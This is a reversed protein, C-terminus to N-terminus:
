EKTPNHRVLYLLYRMKSRLEPKGPLSSQSQSDGGLDVSEGVAITVQTEIGFTNMLPKRSGGETPVTAGTDVSERYRIQVEFESIDVAHLKGALVLAQKGVQSKCHFTSQPRAIVEISHFVTQKPGTESAPQDVYGIADLRLLYDGATAIAALSLYVTLALLFLRYM